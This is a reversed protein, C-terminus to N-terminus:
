SSESRHEHISLVSLIRQPLDSSLLAQDDQMSHSVGKEAACCVSNVAQMCTVKMNM